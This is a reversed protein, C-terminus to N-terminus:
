SELSMIYRTTLTSLLVIPSTMYLPLVTSPKVKKRELHAPYATIAGAPLEILVGPIEEVSACTTLGLCSSNTLSLFIDPRPSGSHYLFRVFRNYATKGHREGKDSQLHDLLGAQRLQFDISTVALAGELDESEDNFDAAIASQLQDQQITNNSPQADDRESTDDDRAATGSEPMVDGSNAADAAASDPVAIPLLADAPIDPVSSTETAATSTETAAASTETTSFYTGM